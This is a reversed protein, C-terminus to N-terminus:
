YLAPQLVQAFSPRVGLMHNTIEEYHPKWFLDQARSVLQQYQPNNRLQGWLVGSYNATIFDIALIADMPPLCIRPGSVVVFEGINDGLLALERGGHELHYLPHIYPSTVPQGANNTRHRDFHWADRRNEQPQFDPRLWIGLTLMNFPDTSPRSTDGRMELDLGVILHQYTHSPATGPPKSIRFLLSSLVYEWSNQGARGEAALHGAATDLADPNLCYNNPLSKLIGAMDLLDARLQSRTANTPLQHPLLGM